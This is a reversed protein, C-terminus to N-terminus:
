GARGQERELKTAFAVLCHQPHHIPEGKRRRTDHWREVVWHPRHSPAHRAAIGLAEDTGLEPDAPPRRHFTVPTLQGPPRRLLSVLLGAKSRVRAAEPLAAVHFVAGTALGLDHREIGEDLIRARVGWGKILLRATIEHEVWEGSTLPRTGAYDALWRRLLLPAAPDDAALAGDWEKAPTRGLGQDTRVHIEVLTSETGQDAEEAPQSSLEAAVSAANDKDREGGGTQLREQALAQCLAEARAGLATVTAMAAEIKAVTATPRRARRNALRMERRLEDLQQQHTAAAADDAMRATVAGHATLIKAGATDRVADFARLAALRAQRLAAMEIAFVLAPRLDIGVLEDTDQGDQSYPLRTNGPGWRIAITGLQHLEKLGRQVTRPSCGVLDALRQNSIRVVLKGDRWRWRPLLRLLAILVRIALLSLGSETATALLTECAADASPVANTFGRYLSARKLAKAQGEPRHAVGAPSSPQVHAEDGLQLSLQLRSKIDPRM